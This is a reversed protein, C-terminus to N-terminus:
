TENQTFLLLNNDLLVDNFLNVKRNSQKLDLNLDGMFYIRKKKDCDALIKRIEAIFSDFDGSPPRYVYVLESKDNAITM